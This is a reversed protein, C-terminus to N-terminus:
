PQLDNLRVTGFRALHQALQQELREQLHLRQSEPYHALLESEAWILVQRCLKEGEDRGPMKQWSTDALDAPSANLQAFQRAAEFLSIEDRLLQEIVLTKARIRNQTVESRLSPPAVLPIAAALRQESSIGTFWEPYHLTGIALLGAVAILSWFWRSTGTVM